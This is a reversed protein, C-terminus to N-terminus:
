ESSTTFVESPQLILLRSRVRISKTGKKPQVQDVKRGKSSAVKLHCKPNMKQGLDATSYHGTCRRRSPFRFMSSTTRTQRVLPVQSCGWGAFFGVNGSTSTQLGGGPVVCGRVSRPQYGLLVDGLVVFVSATVGGSGLHERFVFVSLLITFVAHLCCHEAVYTDATSEIQRNPWTGFVISVRTSGQHSVSYLRAHQERVPQGNRANRTSGVEDAHM